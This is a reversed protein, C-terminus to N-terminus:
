FGYQANLMMRRAEGAQAGLVALAALEARGARWRMAIRRAGDERMTLVPVDIRRHSGTSFLDTTYPKCGIPEPECGVAGVREDGARWRYRGDVRFAVRPTVYYLGGIAINAAL